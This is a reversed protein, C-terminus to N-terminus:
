NFVTELKKVFALYKLACGNRFDPVQGIGKDKMMNGVKICLDHWEDTKGNKDLVDFFISILHSGNTSSLGAIFNETTAFAKFVDSLNDFKLKIDESEIIIQNKRNDVNNDYSKNITKNGRCCDLLFIKPKNKLSDVKYFPEIIKTQIDIEISDSSIFTHLKGHSSMCFFVTAYNSYDFTSTYYEIIQSIQAETQNQYVNHIQFNFKELTMFSKLDNEYAVKPFNLYDPNTFEYNHIMVALGTYQYDLSYYERKEKLTTDGVYETKSPNEIKSNM